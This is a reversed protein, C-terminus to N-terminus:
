GFRVACCHYDVFWFLVANL